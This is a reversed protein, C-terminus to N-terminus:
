GNSREKFIYDIIQDNEGYEHCILEDPAQCKNFDDDGFCCGKCSPKDVKIKEYKDM